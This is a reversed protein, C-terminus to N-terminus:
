KTMPTKAWSMVCACVCVCVNLTMHSLSVCVHREIGLYTVDRSSATKHAIQLACAVELLLLLVDVAGDAQGLAATGLHTEGELDAKRLLTSHSLAGRL